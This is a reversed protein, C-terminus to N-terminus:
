FVFLLIVWFHLPYFARWLWRPMLPYTVGGSFSLWRWSHWFMLVGITLGLLASANFPDLKLGSLNISPLLLAVSVFIILIMSVPKEKANATQVCAFMTMLLVGPLGYDVNLVYALGMPLILCYWLKYRILMVSLAGFMLTVVANFRQEPHLFGVADDGFLGYFGFQSLMALLFLRVLMDIPKNTNYAHAALMLAFLPFALRGLPVTIWILDHFLAKGAHDIAMSIIAVWQLGALASSNKWAKYHSVGVSNHHHSSLNIKNILKSFM